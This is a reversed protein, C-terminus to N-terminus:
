PIKPSPNLASVDQVMHHLSKPPKSSLGPIQFPLPEDRCFAELVGPQPPILPGISAEFGNARAREIMERRIGGALLYVRLTLNTIRPEDRSRLSWAFGILKIRASRVASYWVYASLALLLVRASSPVHLKSLLCTLVYVRPM